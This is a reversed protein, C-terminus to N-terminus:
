MLHLLGVQSDTVNALFASFQKSFERIQVRPCGDQMIAFMLDKGRLGERIGKAM